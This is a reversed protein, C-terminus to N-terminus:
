GLVAVLEARHDGGPSIRRLQEVRFALGVREGGVGGASRADDGVHVRGRRDRLPQVQRVVGARRDLAGALRRGEVEVLSVELLAPEGHRDRGACPSQHEEEAERPEERERQALADGRSGEGDGPREGARQRPEGQPQQEHTM